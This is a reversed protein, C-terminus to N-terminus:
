WGGGKLSQRTDHITTWDDKEAVLNVLWASDGKDNCVFRSMNGGAVAGWTLRDDILFVLDGVIGLDFAIRIQERHTKQNAVVGDRIDHAVIEPFQCLVRSVHFM